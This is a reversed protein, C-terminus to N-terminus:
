GAKPTSIDAERLYFPLAPTEPMRLARQAARVADGASEAIRAAPLCAALDEAADGSLLIDGWGAIEPRAAFDAASENVPPVIVAGDAGTARFYLEERWSQVAVVNVGGVPPTEAFLDFSDVGAVPIGAALGLGRMAALGIRIGTFSGPGTVVALLGIDAYSLGNQALGEGVASFLM